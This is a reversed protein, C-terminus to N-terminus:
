RSKGHACLARRDKLGLQFAESLRPDNSAGNWTLTRGLHYQWNYQEAKEPPPAPPRKPQLARRQELYGHAYAAAETPTSSTPLTSDDGYSPHKLVQYAWSEFSPNPDETGSAKQFEGILSDLTQKYLAARGNRELRPLISQSHKKLPEQLGASPILGYNYYLHLWRIEGHARAGLELVAIIRGLYYFRRDPPTSQINM